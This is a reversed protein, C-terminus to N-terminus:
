PTYVIKLKAETTNQAKDTAVVVIENDGASLQMKHVFEGTSNLTVFSNNITVQSDPKNVEGKIEVIQSNKGFYESGDKPSAITLEIPKDDFTVLKVPSISINGAEDAARVQVRNAGPVLGVRIAFSGDDASVDTVFIKDDVLFDLASKAETFGEVVISASNTAEPLASLIPIQPPIIDKESVAKAGGKGAVVNMFYPIGWKFMVAIFIVSLLIYFRSRGNENTRRYRGPM